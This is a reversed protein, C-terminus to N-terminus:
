GRRQLISLLYKSVKHGDEQEVFEDAFLADNKAVQAKMAALYELDDKKEPVLRMATAKALEAIRKRADESKEQNVIEDQVRAEIQLKAARQFNEASLRKDTITRSRAALSPPTPVFQTGHGPVVGRIFEEVAQELDGFVCDETAEMYRRLVDDPEANNQPPFSTLLRNILKLFGQPNQM